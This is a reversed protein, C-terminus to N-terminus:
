HVVGADRGWRVLGWARRREEQEEQRKCWAEWEGQDPPSVMVWAEDDQKAEEMLWQSLQQIVQTQELLERHGGVLGVREEARLGDDAASCSPVTCDGDVYSYTGLTAPIAQKDALPSVESGYTVSFATDMGTGYINYFKCTPPLAASALLALTTDARAWLHPTPPLPIDQGNVTVCNDKLTDLMLQRYEQLDHVLQKAQSVGGGGGSSGGSGAGAADPPPVDPKLWITATPPGLDRPWSYLPSPVLEYVAPCQMVMKHMTAREVFFYQEWGSVFQVGTLLADMTFGPAGRFPCAIAVWKHVLKEFEERQQALLLKVVLGGMSHTIVHCRRGGCAASAQRLLGALADVHCANSQRFDYGFGFLDKGPTYGQSKLATILTHYYYVVHLPFHLDPDLTDCPYLGGLTDPGSPVVVDYADTLGEILNTEPNFRGWLKQYEADANYLRVWVRSESGGLRDKLHLISGCLGPVLVIPEKPEVPDDSGSPWPWWGNSPPPGVPPEVEMPSAVM